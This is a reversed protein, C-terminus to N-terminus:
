YTIISNIKIKKFIYTNDEILNFIVAAEINSAKTSMRTNKGNRKTLTMNLINKDAVRRQLRQTLIKSPQYVEARDCNGATGGAARIPPKRRPGYAIM